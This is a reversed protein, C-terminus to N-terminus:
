IRNRQTLVFQEVEGEELEAILSGFDRMAERVARARRHPNPHHASRHSRFDRDHITAADRHEARRSRGLGISAPGRSPRLAPRM